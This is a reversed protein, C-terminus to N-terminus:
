NAVNCFCIQVHNKMYKRTFFDKLVAAKYTPVAIPAPKEEPLSIARKKPSEEGRLTAIEDINIDKSHARNKIAPLSLRMGLPLITPKKIKRDALM